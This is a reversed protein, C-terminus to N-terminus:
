GFLVGTRRGDRDDCRMANCQRRTRENTRDVSPHSPRDPADASRKARVIGGFFFGAVVIFVGAFFGAVFAFADRPVPPRFVVAALLLLAAPAGFRRGAAVVPVVAAVAVAVAAVVVTRPYQLSFSSPASFRATLFCPIPAHSFIRLSGSNAVRLHTRARAAALKVVIVIQHHERIEFPVSPSSPFSSSPTGPPPKKIAVGTTGHRPRRRRRRPFPPSM